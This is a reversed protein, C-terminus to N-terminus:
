ELAERVCSNLMWVRWHSLSTQAAKPMSGAANGATVSESATNPSVSRPPRSGRLAGRHPTSPSEWAERNPSPHRSGPM